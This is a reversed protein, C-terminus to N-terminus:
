SKREIVFRAVADLMAKGKTDPLPALADLAKRVEGAASAEVSAYAGRSDMWGAIMRVEDDTVIAGFKTRLVQREAESVKAALRILPLTAQGDRFDMAQVKGTELHKGRYDLVDDIMQFALGIHEGYARLAHRVETSAGAIIAGCECCARIFSATKLALVQLHDEEPLDLIGRLELERVEGEAMEIVSDAVVRVLIHDDDRALLGMAKALLVDGSLITEANGFLRHASPRGRRTPSDDIVDDHVLTAMHIMEMVAGLRRARNLDYASGTAQAGLAVFAPRIRKGGARLIHRGVHEVLRVSSATQRVLEEEVERVEVDLQALLSQDVREGAFSKLTAATM